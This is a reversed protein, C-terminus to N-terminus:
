ASTGRIAMTKDSEERSPIHINFNSPVPETLSAITKEISNRPRGPKRKHQTPRPTAKPRGLIYFANKGHLGMGEFDTTYAKVDRDSDIPSHIAGLPSLNRM